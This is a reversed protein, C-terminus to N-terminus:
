DFLSQLGAESLRLASDKAIYEVAQNLADFVGLEKLQGVTITSFVSEPMEISVQHLGSILYNTDVYGQTGDSVAKATERLVQKAAEYDANEKVNDSTVWVAINAPSDEGMPGTGIYPYGDIIFTPFEATGSGYPGFPLHDNDSLTIVPYESTMTKGKM